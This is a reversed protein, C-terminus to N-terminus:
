VKLMEDVSGRKYARRDFESKLQEMSTQNGEKVSKVYLSQIGKKNLSELTYYKGGVLTKPSDEFKLYNNISGYGDVLAIIDEGINQPLCVRLPNIQNDQSDYVECGRRTTFIATKNIEKGDNDRSIVYVLFGSSSYRSFLNDSVASTCWKTGKGYVQSSEKTLPVIVTTDETKLLTIVRKKAENRKKIVDAKNVESKIEEITNYSSIDNKTIRKAQVHEEFSKLLSSVDDGFISGENEFRNKIIKVLFNAYKYTDSPDTEKVYEILPKSLFPNQELIQKIRSM